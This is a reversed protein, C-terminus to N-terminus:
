ESYDEIKLGFFWKIMKKQFWNFHKDLFITLAREKGIMIKSGNTIKPYHFIIESTNITLNEMVGGRKM